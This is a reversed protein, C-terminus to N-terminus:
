SINLRTKDKQARMTQDKSIKTIQWQKTCHSTEIM